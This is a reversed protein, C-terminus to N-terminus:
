ATAARQRQARISRVLAEVEALDVPKVLHADFGAARSRTRDSEQGYGTVAVLALNELVPLERLRSALEYGDMVPLGIDLLAVDPPEVAAARLASPGDYAVCVRHGAGELFAALTDAADENDDVVLIAREGIPDGTAMPASAPQAATERMAPAAPLRIVFSAGQGRGESRAEVSGGHLQVIGRVIALGLGLGGQARDLAQRAQVFVGFVHPLMDRDIGIGTDRVSLELEDEVRSCTVAITGGPETYKAANTLLNAVAQALRVSDAEVLLGTPALDLVLQHHRQEIMPLAMELAQQVVGAIEVRKRRLEIKGRTIRSVDLLDDVLRVLHKAQREIVEREREVAEAGRMRMLDLATLIPALPNRLEHGLIAFFEDKARNAAEAAHRLEEVQERARVQETVDFAIVLIGEAEGAPTRLPAYVSNFYIDELEGDPRAVQVVLERGVFSEGTRFVNALIQEIPQGRLEPLAEFIPRDIVDAHQRMWIKCAAPNAIEVVLEPGRLVVMATPAQTMLASLHERQLEAERRAEQERALLDREVRRAREAAVNAGLERTVARFFAKYKDDFHLRPSVGLVVVGLCDTGPRGLPLAYAQKTPEPWHGVHRQGFVSELADLTSAMRTEHVRRVLPAMADLVRDELRDVGAQAALELAGREENWLYLLALPIDIANDALTAMTSRIVSGPADVKTGLQRLMESRREALVADTVEVVPQFIGAINGDDDRLPSFTFTFYAEEPFGHRTLTFLQNQVKVVEGKELVRQMWPYIVPYTEPWCATYSAAFYEPHRPGMIVAYGDNYLQTQNPGWFIIAPTPMELMMAVLSVLSQPWASPPGLETESWDFARMIAGM